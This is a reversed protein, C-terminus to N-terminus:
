CFLEIASLVNNRYNHFLSLNLCTSVAGVETDFDYRDRERKLSTITESVLEIALGCAHKFNSEMNENHVWKLRSSRKVWSYILNM